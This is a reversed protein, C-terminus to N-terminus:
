TITLRLCRLFLLCNSTLVSYNKQTTRTNQPQFLSEDPDM